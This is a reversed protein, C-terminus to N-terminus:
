ANEDVAEEKAAEEKAATPEPKAAVKNATSATAASTPEPAPPKSSPKPAEPIPEPEPIGLQQRARSLLYSTGSQVSAILAEGTSAATEAESSEAKEGLNNYWVRANRGMQVSNRYFWEGGVFTLCIVLWVLIGTERVIAWTLVLTKKYTEGTEASFLLQSVKNAQQKIKDM